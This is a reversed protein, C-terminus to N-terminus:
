HLVNERLEQEAQLWDEQAHGDTGGRALYIDYARREVEEPAPGSATSAGRRSCTDTVVQQVAQKETRKSM